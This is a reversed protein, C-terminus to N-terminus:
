RSSEARGADIDEVSMNPTKAKKKRFLAFSIGVAIAPLSFELVPNGVKVHLALTILCGLFTGAYGPLFGVNDHRFPYWLAVGYAYVAVIIALVMPLQHLKEIM